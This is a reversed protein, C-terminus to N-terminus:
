LKHGCSGCFRDSATVEAGCQTCFRTKSRTEGKGMNMSMNGMQMSMTNIDMSMNGMKMPQMPEFQSKQHNAATDSTNKFDVLVANDLVPTTVTSISNARISISFEGRDGSIQLIFGSETRYLKPTNTWNGTTFSNSQSQQQGPSSSILTILTQNGQNLVTLQQNGNLNVRYAM